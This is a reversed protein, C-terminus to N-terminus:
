EYEFKRKREDNEAQRQEYDQRQKKLIEDNKDKAMAIKEEHHRRM